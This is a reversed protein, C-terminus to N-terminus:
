RRAGQASAVSPQCEMCYIAGGFRAKNFWCFRAVSYTVPAACNACVRKQRPRGEAGAAPGTPETAAVPTPAEQAAPRGAPALETLGFRAAWNFEIPQHLAALARAFELLTDKGILRSVTAVSAAISADDVHRGLTTRLQDNKIITELGHMRTKPRSIRAHKSVLVLSQLNPRLALGLRRPLAVRGSALVSRLVELHRLNQEIPSPVGYPRRRFFGTFEGCENIALGEGFHKSELVYVDLFRNILLHDIQAVRGEHEIRLDHISAWNESAGWQFEIEYAAEQEGKRGAQLKRMEIEIRERLARDVDPRRCLRELADLDRQRDDAAKIQM